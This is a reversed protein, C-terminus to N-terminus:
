KGDRFSFPVRDAIKAQDPKILPALTFSEGRVGEGIVELSVNALIKVSSSVRTSSVREYRVGDCCTSCFSIPISLAEGSGTLWTWRRKFGPGRQSQVEYQGIRASLTRVPTRLLPLDPEIDGGGEM